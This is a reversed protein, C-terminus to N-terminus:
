WSSFSTIKPLLDLIPDQHIQGIHFTENENLYLFPNM